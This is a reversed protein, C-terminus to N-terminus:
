LGASSSMRSASRGSRPVVGVKRLLSRLSAELGLGGVLGGGFGCISASSTGGSVISTSGCSTSNTPVLLVDPFVLFVRMVFFRRWRNKASFGDTRSAGSAGLSVATNHLQPWIVALAIWRSWSAHSSILAAQVFPRHSSIGSSTRTAGYTTCRARTGCSGPGWTSRVVPVPSGPVSPVGLVRRLTACVRLLLCPQPIGAVALLM